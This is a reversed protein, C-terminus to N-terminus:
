QVGPMTMIAVARSSRSGSASSRRCRPRARRCCRGSCPSDASRGPSRPRPRPRHRRAALPAGVRHAGVEVDDAPRDRPAVADAVDGAPRDEGGVADNGPMSWRLITRLGSWWARILPMSRESASRTGPEDAGQGRGVDRVVPVRDEDSMPTSGSSSNTRASSRTRNLPSAMTAIRASVSAAAQLGDRLDPEVELLQRRDEVDLLREPGSAGITVWQPLLVNM